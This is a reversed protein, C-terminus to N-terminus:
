RFFGSKQPKQYYLLAGLICMVLKVVHILLSSALVSELAIGVSGWYLAFAAEQTGIGNTSVPLHLM